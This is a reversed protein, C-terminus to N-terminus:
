IAALVVGNWLVVALYWGSATALALHAIRSDRSQRLLLAIIILVVAKFFSVQWIGDILPQVFPNGEVGGRDLVAATTIVDAINLVVLGFYMLWRQDTFASHVSAVAPGSMM